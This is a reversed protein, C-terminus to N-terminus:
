PLLAWEKGSSGECLLELVWSWEQRVLSLVTAAVSFVLVCPFPPGMTLFYLYWVCASVPPLHLFEQHPDHLRGCSHCDMGTVYPM